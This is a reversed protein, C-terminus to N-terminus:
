QLVLHPRDRLFNANGQIFRVKFSNNKKDGQWHMCLNKTAWVPFCIFNLPENLPQIQM